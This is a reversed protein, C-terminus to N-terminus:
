ASRTSADHLPAADLGVRSTRALAAAGEGTAPHRWGPAIEALPGMVFRREAARPHPLAPPGPEVRRGWAVLDLDLPRPANRLGRARGAEAEIRHLVALAKAPSLATEIRAVANLFPPDAADPWAASRWLRSRKVIRLGEASLRVLARELTEAPGGWPGATSSGLGVFVGEAAEGDDLVTEKGEGEVVM